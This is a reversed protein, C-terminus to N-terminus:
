ELQSPRADGGDTRKNNDKAAAIRLSSRWSHAAAFFGLVTGPLNRWDTGIGVMVAPQRPPFIYLMALGVVVAIVIWVLLFGVGAVIYRM